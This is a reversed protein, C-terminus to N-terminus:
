ETKERMKFTLDFILTKETINNTEIYEKVRRLINKFREMDKAFIKESM